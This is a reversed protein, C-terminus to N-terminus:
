ERKRGLIVSKLLYALTPNQENCGDSAPKSLRVSFLTRMKLLDLAFLKKGICQATDKKRCSRPDGSVMSLLRIGRSYGQGSFLPHRGEM